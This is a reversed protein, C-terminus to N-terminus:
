ARPCTVPPQENAAVHADVREGECGEVVRLERDCASGTASGGLQGARPGLVHWSNLWGSSPAVQDKTYATMAGLTGPRPTVGRGPESWM